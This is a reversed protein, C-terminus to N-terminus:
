YHILSFGVAPLEHPGITNDVLPLEHLCLSYNRIVPHYAAYM